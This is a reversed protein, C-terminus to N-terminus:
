GCTKKRCKHSNMKKIFLMDIIDSLQKKTYGDLYRKRTHYVEYHLQQALKIQKTTARTALNDLKSMFDNVSM